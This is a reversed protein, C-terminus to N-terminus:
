TGQTGLTLYSQVQLTSLKLFNIILIIKGKSGTETGRFTRKKLSWAARLFCCLQHVSHLQKSFCLM